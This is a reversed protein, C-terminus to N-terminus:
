NFNNLEIVLAASVYVVYIFILGFGHLRKAKFGTILMIVLTSSLTFLITSALLTIMTTYEVKISSSQETLM